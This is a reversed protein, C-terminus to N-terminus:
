RLLIMKKVESFSGSTLKYLYMGSSLKSADFEANYKGESRFGNILTAVERGLADFVKLTVNGAQPISFAITTTPNFPNPFNQSLLYTAPYDEDKEVSMTPNDFDLINMWVSTNGNIDSRNWATYIKNNRLRTIPYYDGNTQNQNVKFNVGIKTGTTSYRQAKLNPWEEWVIIFRGESDIDAVTSSTASAPTENVKVVAGVPTGQESFEQFFINAQFNTADREWALIINGNQKHILAPKSLGYNTSDEFDVFVNRLSYSRLSDDCTIGAIKWVGLSDKETWVVLYGIGSSHKTITPLFERVKIRSNVLVTDPQRSRKLPPFISKDAYIDSNTFGLIGSYSGNGAWVTFLISDNHWIIDPHYRNYDGTVAGHLIIEDSHDIGDKLIKGKIYTKFWSAELSIMDVWVCMVLNKNISLKPAAGGAVTSSIKRASFVQNGMSDLISYYIGHDKKQTNRWIIHQNGRYDLDFFPTAGSDVLIFDNRFQSYMIIPLLLLLLVSRKMTGGPQQFFLWRLGLSSQPPMIM